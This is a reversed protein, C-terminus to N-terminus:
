SALSEYQLIDILTSFLLIVHYTIDAPFITHYTFSSAHRSLCLVGKVHHHSQLFTHHCQHHSLSLSSCHYQLSCTVMHYLRIIHWQTTMSWHVHYEQHYEPMRPRTATHVKQHRSARPRTDATYDARPQWSNMLTFSNVPLWYSPLPTAKEPLWSSVTFCINHRSTFHFCIIARSISTNM